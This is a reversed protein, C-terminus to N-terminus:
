KRLAKVSTFALESKNWIARLIGVGQKTEREREVLFWKIKVSKREM